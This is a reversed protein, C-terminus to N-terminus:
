AIGCSLSPSGHRFFSAEVGVTNKKFSLTFLCCSLKPSGCVDEASIRKMPDYCLFRSLLDLAIKDATPAIVGLSLPKMSPFDIKKFDPLSEIGQVDNILTVAIILDRWKGAM